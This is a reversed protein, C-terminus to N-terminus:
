IDIYISVKTRGKNSICMVKTKRVNIKMGYEKTVRNLNDMLEQLGKHTDCVVAKDDVYRIMNVAQGGVHVGRESNRTAEKVMAEDYIIFLLPSLSHTTPKNM